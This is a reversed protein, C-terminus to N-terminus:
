KGEKRKRGYGKGMMVGVPALAPINECMIKVTVILPTALLMGVAGWLWGWVILGFLILFPSIDLKHGQLRPDIINGLIMQISAMTLAVAFVKGPSEPYFQVFGMVSVIGFHAVSGISPIFNLFFGVIGWVIPFDMGIITLSLWILIATVASIILKITLYRGIQQNIHGVIEGIKDSTSGPFASELKPKLYPKELLLFLLFITVIFLGTAVELVTDPITVIYGQVMSIWDFGDFLGTPLGSRESLGSTFSSVLEELKMQYRPFVRIFSQLSTYFFVGILFFLGLIVVIIITIGVIRPVHRDHLFEVVPALVFSLLIGIVLPMIVPQAYNLALIVLGLAITGLLAISVKQLNM